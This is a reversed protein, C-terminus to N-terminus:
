YNSMDTRTQCSMSGCFSILRVTSCFHVCSNEEQRGLTTSMMDEPARTAVDRRWRFSTWFSETSKRDWESAKHDPAAVLKRFDAHARQIMRDIIWGRWEMYSCGLPNAGLTELCMGYSAAAEEFKRAKFLENGYEKQDHARKAMAPDYSWITVNPNRIIWGWDGSYRRPCKPLGAISNLGPRFSRRWVSHPPFDAIVLHVEPESGDGAAHKQLSWPLPPYGDLMMRKNSGFVCDRSEQYSDGGAAMTFRMKWRMGILTAENIDRRQSDSLAVQYIQKWNASDGSQDASSDADDAEDVAALTELRASSTNLYENANQKSQQLARCLPRWLAPECSFRLLLKCTQAVRCLEQPSCQRLIQVLLEEALSELRPVEREASAEMTFCTDSGSASTAASPLRPPCTRRGHGGPYFLIRNRRFKFKSSLLLKAKIAAAGQEPYM